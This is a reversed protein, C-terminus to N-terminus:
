RGAIIAPRRHRIDRPRFKPAPALSPLRRAEEQFAAVEEDPLVHLFSKLLVITERLCTNLDYHLSDLELWVERPSISTGDVVEELATGLDNHIDEVMELLCHIKHLFQSRQTLLVHSLLANMRAARSCRLGRFNGPDLPDANPTTGYHRAHTGLARLMAVLPNFLLQSVGATVAAAQRSKGLFGKDRLAIAEDLTVSLMCYATEFEQAFEQFVRSKDQPLWARWDERVSSRVRLPQTHERV